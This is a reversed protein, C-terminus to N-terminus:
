SLSYYSGEVCDCEKNVTLSFFVCWVACPQVILVTVTPVTLFLVDSPPLPGHQSQWGPGRRGWSEM